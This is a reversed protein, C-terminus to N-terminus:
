TGSVTATATAFNDAPDPDSTSSTSTATNSIVTGEKVSGNVNVVITFTDTADAALSPAVCRVMGASGIPPTTCSWKAPAEISRFTTEAPLDDGMTLSEAADPGENTILITYTLDSGPPIPDPSATKSVSLDAAATTHVIKSIFADGAGGSAPQFPNATPFDASRTEGTVYVNGAADLALSAGVDPAGGGLYTSYVLATGEANFKTVFVDDAGGNAGQPPDETPFNTSRTSGTVSVSGSADVAIGGVIASAIVFNESADGGLYTSYIPGSGEANLVTVFADQGGGYAPQYPNATPFNTSDTYGTVFANGTSATAISLGADQGSGGVYTSYSLAAGDANLRTVFADRGGGSTVQWPNAVPFDLSDTWGTLSVNGESDVAISNGRDIFTGGLFTSYALNSGEANLKTVFGDNMGGGYSTQFAGLTFPFDKRSATGGTVYANGLSDVAIGFGADNEFGGLYTSYILASGDANLKTVFADYTGGRFSTQFAGETIPFNMSAVRGTVYANGKADVAISNGRDSLSGGLYTSYVLASGTSNLKTVFVNKAGRNTTQFAGETTPFDTSATEGTVYASGTADVAIGNGVDDGGGGLYTSYDLAPDIVLPRTADYAAIQFGVRRRGKLVYRGEVAQRIGAADQYVEPGHQRIEGSATQLVLDGRRDLHMKRAGEFALAILGPDAGPAVVFDYELQRGKGYYVLDVGPYVERYRVKAYNSINTRWKEPANGIFHHSKGPLPEMGAVQPSSNAGLLKIRLVTVPRDTQGEKMAARSLRRAREPAPESLALVAANSTLFISVGRGRSLFKVQSDIQGLNAEFRLPLRGYARAIKPTTREAELSRAQTFGPGIGPDGSDVNKIPLSLTVVSIFIGWRYKKRSMTGETSDDLTGDKAQRTLTRKERFGFCPRREAWLSSPHDIKM